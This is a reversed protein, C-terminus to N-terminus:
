RMMLQLELDLSNGEEKSSVYGEMKRGEKSCRNYQDVQGNLLYFLSSVTPFHDM